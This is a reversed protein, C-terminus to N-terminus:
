ARAQKKREPPKKPPPTPPKGKPPKEEEGRKGYLYNAMAKAYIRLGRYSKTGVRKSGPPCTLPRGGDDDNPAAIVTYPKRRNM